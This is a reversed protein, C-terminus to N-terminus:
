SPCRCTAVISPTDPRCFQWRPLFASQRRLPRRTAYVIGPVDILDADRDALALVAARDARYRARYRRDRGPTTMASPPAIPILKEVMDPHARAFLAVQNSAGATVPSWSTSIGGRGQAM